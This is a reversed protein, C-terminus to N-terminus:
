QYEIIHSDTILCNLINNVLLEVSNYSFINLQYRYLNTLDNMSIKRRIHPFIENAHKGHTVLYLINYLVTGELNFM